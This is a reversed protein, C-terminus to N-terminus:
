EKYNLKFNFNDVIFLILSKCFESSHKLISVYSTMNSTISSIKNLTLWDSVEKCLSTGDYPIFQRTTQREIWDAFMYNSHALNSDLRSYIPWFSNIIAINNFIVNVEDVHPINSFNSFPVNRFTSELNM